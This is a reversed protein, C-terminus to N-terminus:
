QFTSRFCDRYGRNRSSSLKPSKAANGNASEHLSFDWPELYNTTARREKLRHRPRWTTTDQICWDFQISCVARLRSREMLGDTKNVCNQQCSSEPETHYCTRSNGRQPESMVSMLDRGPNEAVSKIDLDRFSLM